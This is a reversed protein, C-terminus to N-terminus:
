KVKNSGEAVVKPMFPELELFSLVINKCNRCMKDNRYVFKWVELRAKTRESLRDYHKTKQKMFKNFQNQAIHDDSLGNIKFETDCINESKKYCDWCRGSPSFYDFEKFCTRCLGVLKKENDIKMLM